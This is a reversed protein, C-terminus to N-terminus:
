LEKSLEDIVLFLKNRQNLERLNNMIELKVCCDESLIGLRIMEYKFDNDETAINHVTNFMSEKSLFHIPQKELLVEHNALLFENKYKKYDALSKPDPNFEEYYKMASADCSLILYLAMLKKNEHRLQQGEKTYFFFYNSDFHLERERIYFFNKPLFNFAFDDDLIVGKIANIYLKDIEM